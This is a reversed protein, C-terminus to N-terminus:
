RCKLRASIDVRFNISSSKRMHPFLSRLAGETSSVKDGILPITRWSDDGPFYFRLHISVNRLCMLYPHALAEDLSYWNDETFYQTHHIETHVHVEIKITNLNRLCDSCQLFESLKTIEPMSARTYKLVLERLNAYRALDFSDSPTQISESFTMKLFQLHVRARLALAHINDMERLNSIKVALKRLRFFTADTMKDDKDVILFSTNIEISELPPPSSLSALSVTPSSSLSDELRLHKIQSDNFIDLPIDVCNCIDLTSLHSSRLLALLHTKLKDDFNAWVVNDQLVLALECLSKSKIFERLILSVIPLNISEGVDYSIVQISFSKVLHTISFAADMMYAYLATLDSMVREFRVMGGLNYRRPIRVKAFTYRRARMWFSRCVYSCARLAEHAGPSSETSNLDEVLADVFLDCIEVPLSPTAM